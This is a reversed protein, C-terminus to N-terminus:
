GYTIGSFNYSGEFAMDNLEGTIEKGVYFYSLRDCSAFAHYSIIGVNGAIEVRELSKCGYFAEKGISYLDYEFFIETLSSCGYFARGGVYDIRNGVYATELAGCGEFASTGIGGVGDPFYVAELHQSSFFAYDEVYHTGESIQYEFDDRGTPYKVLRTQAKNYLVGDIDCYSMNLPSVTFSNIDPCTVFARVSIFNVTSPIILERLSFCGFLTNENIATIGEPVVLKIITDCGEFAYDTIATVPTGGYYSPIIVTGGDGYYGSVTYCGDSGIIFDFEAREAGQWVAYFETDEYLYVDADIGYEVDGNPTSSWGLLTKNEDLFCDSLVFPNSGDGYIEFYEGSGDNKYLTAVIYEEVYLEVLCLDINRYVRDGEFDWIQLGNMDVWYLGESGPPMPPEDILGGRKVSQTGIPNGAYDYFIVTYYIGTGQPKSQETSDGAGGTGEPTSTDTKDGAAVCSETPTESGNDESLLMRILFVTGVIALASALICSVLIIILARKSKEASEQTKAGATNSAGEVTKQSASTDQSELGEIDNPIPAAEEMGAKLEEGHSLEDAQAQGDVTLEDDLLQDFSVGFLKAIKKLKDIEPLSIGAEWKYVSQRSVDLKIALHEQSWGKKKRLYIIKESFEM